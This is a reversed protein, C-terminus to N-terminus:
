KLLIMKRTVVSNEVQLRYFYVGSGVPIGNSDKGAWEISYYGPEEIHEVLSTIKKGTINYIILHVLSKKSIEYTINTILNFPNPYNDHLIFQEPINIKDITIGTPYLEIPDGPTLDKGTLGPYDPGYRLCRGVENQEISDGQFVPGSDTVPNIYKWVVKNDPTVEFFIGNTGSCILTNGNPLRQAGSFRPSYFDTPNDATYIWSQESPEYASDAQLSYHGSPDVPTVIEDVSSFVGEPRKLGNNLIMINGAGPLGPEIWHADHQAYLKQDDATGATYSAPNGWRYLIDGGMGSNGGTHTAAEATSTSHDIVWIENLHRNSILIQDFEPHYDISNPHIWDATGNTTFNLDILEPHESVTGYNPKKSDFDQILHDWVHWEWVINGSSSDTKEVEIIHLGRLKGDLLVPNRGAAIAESNTKVENAIMLVNGDPLPEVDHHQRVYCYEWVISGNWTIEQFGGGLNGGPSIHASRLLNGNGLLYATQTPTYESEWQHVLLGNMDILYTTTSNNPVFLTYGKFAASDNVFIGVTQEQAIGNNNIISFILLFSLIHGTLVAILFRM